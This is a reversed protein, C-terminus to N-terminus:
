GGRGLTLVPRTPPSSRPVAEVVGCDLREPSARLGLHEVALLPAGADLQAVGHELVELDEVVALPTVAGEPYAARDLILVEV